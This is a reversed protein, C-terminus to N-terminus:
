VGANTEEMEAAKRLLRSFMAATEPSVDIEHWDVQELAFIVRPVAKVTGSGQCAPCTETM